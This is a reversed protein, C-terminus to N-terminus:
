RERGFRARIRPNEFRYVNSLFLDCPEAAAFLPEGFDEAERLRCETIRTRPLEFDVVQSAVAGPSRTRTAPNRDPKMRIRVEAGTWDSAIGAFRERFHYSIASCAL